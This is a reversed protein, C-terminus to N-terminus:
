QCCCAGGQGAGGAWRRGGRGLAASHRAPPVKQPGAGPLLKFIGSEFVVGFDYAPRAPRKVRAGGHAQNFPSPWWSLM